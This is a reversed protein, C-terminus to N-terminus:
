WKGSAIERLTLNELEKDAVLRQRMLQANEKGLEKLRKVGDAKVGSSTAGATTPRSTAPSRRCMLAKTSYGTAQNLKRVIQGPTHRRRVMTFM